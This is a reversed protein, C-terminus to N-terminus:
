NPKMRLNLKQELIRYQEESNGSARAEDYQRDLEAMADTTIPQPQGPVNMPSPATETGQPVAPQTPLKAELGVLMQQFAEGELTSSLALDLFPNNRTTSETGDEATVTEVTTQSLIGPYRLITQIKSLQDTLPTVQGAQQQLEPLSEIQTKYDDRESQATQLQGQAEALVERNQSSLTQQQGLWTDWQSQRANLEGRLSDYQRKWDKTTKAGTDREVQTSTPPMELKAPPAVPASSAPTTGAPTSDDIESPM